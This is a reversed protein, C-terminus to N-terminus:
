QCQPRAENGDRLRAAVPSGVGAPRQRMEVRRTADRVADSEDPTQKILARQTTNSQRELAREPHRVLPRRTELARVTRYAFWDASKRGNPSEWKETGPSIIPLENGIPTDPSSLNNWS